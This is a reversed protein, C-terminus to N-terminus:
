RLESNARSAYSNGHGKRPYSVPHPVPYPVPYPVSHRTASGRYSFDVIGTKARPRMIVRVGQVIKSSESLCGNFKESSFPRKGASLCGTESLCGTM